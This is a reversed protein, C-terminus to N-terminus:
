RRLEFRVLFSVWFSIARGREIIPKFLFQRVANLSSEDFSLGGYSSRVYAESVTGDAAICAEVLVYGERANAIADPPYIPKVLRLIVYDERYPVPAHSAHTRFTLDEELEPVVISPRPEEAPRPAPEDGTAPAPRDLGEIFVEQLVLATRQAAIDSEPTRDDLISIEPHLMPPGEYGFRVIHRVASVRIFAIFLLLHAIITLPFLIFLRRRYSRDHEDISIM